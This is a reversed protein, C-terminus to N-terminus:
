VRLGSLRCGLALGEPRFGWIGFGSMGELVTIFSKLFVELLKLCKISGHLGMVFARASGEM